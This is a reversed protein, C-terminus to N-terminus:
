ADHYESMGLLQSSAMKAAKGKLFGNKDIYGVQKMQAFLDDVTSGKGSALNNMIDWISNVDNWTKMAGHALTNQNLLNGNKDILQSANDIAHKASIAEEEPTQYIAGTIIKDFWSANSGLEQEIATKVGSSRNSFQGVLAKNFKNAIEATTTVEKKSATDLLDARQKIIETIDQTKQQSDKNGELQGYHKTVLDTYKRMEQVVNKKYTSFAEYNEFNGVSGIGMARLTDGDFDGGM